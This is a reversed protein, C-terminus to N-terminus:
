LGPLLGEGLTGDLWCQSRLSEAEVVALFLCRNNLGGM